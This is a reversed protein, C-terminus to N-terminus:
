SNSNQKDEFYSIINKIEEFLWSVCPMNYELVLHEKRKKLIVIADNIARKLLINEKQIELIIKLAESDM